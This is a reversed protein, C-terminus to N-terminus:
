KISARQSIGGSICGHDFSPRIPSSVYRSCQQFFSYIISITSGNSYASLLPSTAGFYLLLFSIFSSIVPRQRMDKTKSFTKVCFGRECWDTLFRFFPFIIKRSVSWSRVRRPISRGCVIEVFTLCRVATAYIPLPLRVCQSSLISYLM